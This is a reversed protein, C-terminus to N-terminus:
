ILSKLGVTVIVSIVAIVFLDSLWYNLQSAKPITVFHIVASNLGHMKAYDLCDSKTGHFLKAQRLQVCYM